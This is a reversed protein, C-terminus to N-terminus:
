SCDSAILLVQLTFYLAEDEKEAIDFLQAPFDVIINVVSIVVSLVGIILSGGVIVAQVNAKSFDEYIGCPDTKCAFHTSEAGASYIIFAVSFILQPFGVTFSYLANANLIGAFDTHSVSPQWGYEMLRYFPTSHSPKVIRRSFQRSAQHFSHLIGKAECIMFLGRIPDKVKGNEDCLKAPVKYSDLHRIQAMQIKRALLPDNAAQAAALEEEFVKKQMDEDPNGDEDEGAVEENAHNINGGAGYGAAADRSKHATARSVYQPDAVNEIQAAEVDDVDAAAAAAPMLVKRTAARKLAASAQTGRNQVNKAEILRKNVQKILNKGHKPDGPLMLEDLGNMEAEKLAQEVDPIKLEEASVTEPTLLKLAQASAKRKKTADFQPGMWFIRKSALAETLDELSIGNIENLQVKETFREIFKTSERAAFICGCIYIIFFWGIIGVFLLFIGGATIYSVLSTITFLMDFDSVLLVVLTILKMMNPSVTLKGGEEEDRKKKEEEEKKRQKREKATEVRGYEPDTFATWARSCREFCGVM